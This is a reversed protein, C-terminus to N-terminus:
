ILMSKKKETNWNKALSLKECNAQKCKNIVIVLPFLKKKIYEHKRKCNRISSMGCRKFSYLCINFKDNALVVGCGSRRECNPIRYVPFLALIWLISLRFGMEYNCM